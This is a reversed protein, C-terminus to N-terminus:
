HSRGQTVQHSAYYFLSPPPPAPCQRRRCKQLCGTFSDIFKEDVPVDPVGTHRGFGGFFFFFFVNFSRRAPTSSSQSSFAVAVRRVAFFPHVFTFHHIQISFFLQRRDCEEVAEFPPASGTLWAGPGRAHRRAWVVIFVCDKLDDSSRSRRRGRRCWLRLLGFCRCFSSNSSRSVM